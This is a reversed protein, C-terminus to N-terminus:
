ITEAFDFFVSIFDIVQDIGYVIVSKKKLMIRIYRSNRQRVLFHIVNPQHYSLNRSNHKFFTGFWSVGLLIATLCDLKRNVNSKCRLMSSSSHFFLKIASFIRVVAIALLLTPFCSKKYVWHSVTLRENDCWDFMEGSNLELLLKRALLCQACYFLNLQPSKLYLM